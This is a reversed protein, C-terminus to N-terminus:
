LSHFQFIFNIKYNINFLIFLLWIFFINLWKVKSKKQKKNKSLEPFLTNNKQLFNFYFCKRKKLALKKKRSFTKEKILKRKFNDFFYFTLFIIWNEEFYIPFDWKNAWFYLGWNKPNCREKRRRKRKKKVNISTFKLSM